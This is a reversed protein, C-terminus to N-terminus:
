CSTSSCWGWRLTSSRIISCITEGGAGNGAGRGPDFLVADGTTYRVTASTRLVMRLFRHKIRTVKPSKRIKGYGFQKRHTRAAETPPEAAWRFM